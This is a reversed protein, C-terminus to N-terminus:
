MNFNCLSETVQTKGCGSHPLLSKVQPPWLLKRRRGDARLNTLPTVQDKGASIRRQRRRFRGGKSEPSFTVIRKMYRVDSEENTLRRKDATSENM